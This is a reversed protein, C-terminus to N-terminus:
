KGPVVCDRDLKGLSAIVPIKFDRNSVRVVAVDSSASQCASEKGIRPLVFEQDVWLHKRLWSLFLDVGESVLKAVDETKAM